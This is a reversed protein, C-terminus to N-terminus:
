LADVSAITKESGRGPPRVSKQEKEAFNYHFKQKRGKVM